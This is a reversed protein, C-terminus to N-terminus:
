ESLVTYVIEMYPANDHLPGNISGVSYTGLNTSYTTSTQGTYYSQNTQADTTMFWIKYDNSAAIKERDNNIIKQVYSSFDGYYYGLSRNLTGVNNNSTYIDTLPTYSRIETDDSM